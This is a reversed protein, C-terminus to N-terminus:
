RQRPRNDGSSQTVCGFHRGVITLIAAATHARRSCISPLPKESSDRNLMAKSQRCRLLYEATGADGDSRVRLIGIRFFDGELEPIKLGRRKSAKARQATPASRAISLKATPGSVHPIVPLMIMGRCFWVAANIDAQSTSTTPPLM